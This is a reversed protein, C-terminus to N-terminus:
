QIIFRYGISAGIPFLRTQFDVNYISELTDMYENV